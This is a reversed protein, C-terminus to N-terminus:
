YLSAAKLILSKNDIRDKNRFLIDSAKSERNRIMQDFKSKQRALLVKRISKDALARIRKKKLYYSKPAAEKLVLIEHLNQFYSTQIIKIKNMQDANLELKYNLRRVSKDVDAELTTNQGWSICHVIVLLIVLFGRKMTNATKKEKEQSSNNEKELNIRNEKRCLDSCNTITYNRMQCRQWNTNGKFKSVPGFYCM